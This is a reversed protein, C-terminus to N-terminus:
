VLGANRKELGTLDLCAGVLQLSDVPSDFSDDWGFVAPAISYEKLLDARGALMEEVIFRLFGRSRESQAFVTSALVGNLKARIVDAPHEPASQPDNASPSRSPGM